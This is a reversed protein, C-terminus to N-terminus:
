ESDLCKAAYQCGWRLPCERCLPDRSLCFKASLDLLGYNFCRVDKCPLLSDAFEQFQKNRRLNDSLNFGFYRCIVRVVNTDVPVTRMVEANLLTARAVYPGVGPFTILTEFCLPIDKNPRRKLTKCIEVVNQARWTLGLRSVLNLLQAPEANVFHSLTPYMALFEDFINKVAPANTRRLLLEAILLEYPNSTSRWRFIRLNGKRLSWRSLSETFFSIRALNHDNM